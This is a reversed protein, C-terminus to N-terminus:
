QQVSYNAIAEFDAVLRDDFFQLLSADEDIEELCDFGPEVEYPYTFQLLSYEDLESVYLRLLIQGMYECLSSAGIFYRDSKAVTNQENYYQTNTAIDLATIETSGGGRAPGTYEFDATAIAGVVETGSFDISYQAGDHQQEYRRVAVDGWSEPHIFEFGLEENEYLTFGAPLAETTGNEPSTVDESDTSQSASEQENDSQQSWVYYGGFGLVALVLVILLIEVLTFGSQDRM